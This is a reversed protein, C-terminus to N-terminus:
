LNKTADYIKRYSNYVENYKMVNENIPSVGKKYHVFIKACEKLDTFWGLGVAAMMAAGLGPGQETTLTIIETDFIDAQMQLWDKNKSGGGVSLIKDFKRGSLESMLEKSDRLSFTIGELVARAFHSRTHTTDIRTFSGRVKSDAYPTREGM